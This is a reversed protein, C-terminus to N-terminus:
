KKMKLVANMVLGVAKGTAAGVKKAAEMRVEELAEPDTIGKRKADEVALEIYDNASVTDLAKSIMDTVAEKKITMNEGGRCDSQIM